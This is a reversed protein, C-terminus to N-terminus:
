PHRPEKRSSNTLEGCALMRSGYYPNEIAGDKQLWTKRAMPCYAIRVSSERVSANSRAYAVLAESLPGFAQRAGAVTTERALGGAAKAIAPAQAATAADRLTAAQAAVGTITDHALAAHIALAADILPAPANAAAPKVATAPAAAARVATHGHGAAGEIYRLIADVEGPMLSLNPMRVERYSQALAVAIPDKKSRLVDPQRTYEALWARDHTAIARGLDPGIREGQGITHCGACLSKFMYEGDGRKVAPAETYSRGGQAATWSTLWDTIIRATYAPNDLASTRLWQNTVENGVLLMPQHGDKTEAPDSWLGLRKSLTDIDSMKGTLFIWGPGANFKEAYAKLVPPTDREPDISISLFFVERGMRDGLIQQMRALKSTEIPCAYECTTYIVNVAVIRGKILDYFKVDRGDQTTLTVDPFLAAGRRGQAGISAPRGLAIACVLLTLAATFAASRTRKTM